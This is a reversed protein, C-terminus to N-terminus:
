KAYNYRPQSIKKPGIRPDYTEEIDNPHYLQDYNIHQKYPREFTMDKAVIITGKKGPRIEITPELNIDARLKETILRGINLAVEDTATSSASDDDDDDDDDAAIAISATVGSLLFASGFTRLYHHNVKDKAGSYGEVDSGRLNEISLSEGNPFILRNWIVAVRNVGLTNNEEYTGFVKTGQPILLYDGTRTDYTNSNVQAIVNGGLDSNIGSIYTMSIISGSKLELESAPPQVKFPLIVSTDENRNEYAFIATNEPTKLDREALEIGSLPPLVGINEEPKKVQRKQSVVAREAKMKAIREKFASLNVNLPADAILAAEERQMRKLEENQKKNAEELLALRKLLGDPINNYNGAPAEKTHIITKQAPPAPTEVYGKPIGSMLKDLSADDNNIVLDEPDKEEAEKAQKQSRGSIGTIILIVILSFVGLGIFLPIKNLRKVGTAPNIKPNLNDNKM